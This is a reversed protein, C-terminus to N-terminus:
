ASHRFVVDMHWELAERAPREPESDPLRIVEGRAEQRYLDLGNGFDEHLRPSVRLRYSPDVGVYGADYLTHLDSRLLLGNPVAHQGGQAYPRIHAAQLSPFIRSGSIACRRAYAEAVAVRFSGQGLRARTLAPEGYRPGDDLDTRLDADWGYYDVRPSDSLVHFAHAVYEGEPSELDYRKRTVINPSWDRPQPLEDGYEAFFLNRLIICGITPDPQYDRRTRGRYEQIAAHLARESPVGNGEGWVAWAESVRLEFARDFFGGGILKNDPSHTKFLFPEGASLSKFGTGSPVWFNAETLGPRERLYSAWANDTVGVVAHM